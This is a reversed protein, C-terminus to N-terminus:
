KRIELVEVRRDAPFPIELGNRLSEGTVAGAERGTMASRLHFAGDPFVPLKVTVRDMHSENRFLGIMGEGSRSLRAYGDWSAGGPQRWNGLPFFGESLPVQRRLAKFGRIMEGYWSQQQPTLKRLDGLFLPGSAMATVLREEISPMEAQLNGILMTESPIALSRLYLLTRAQRPGAAGQERDDVNSLWDLDGATLLGYDIIHKQGWLEFTLDLLVGPHAQYIRDTVYRIGEYIRELSEAWTLHYHGGAYCGPSEGYANFVTTLDMKVYGLRYRGVLDILRKAAADRYGSDLCMVAAAGAATRTIKPNGDRDKCVWEPHQKYIETDTSIAALPSWLGLRMGQKEVAAQIEELGNPFSRLNIANDGYEAQWGDDITFVDIGMRGAITILDLTVQRSIGRQFPEWTNYIWPPQYGAGKKMLTRSTYSPMVWRPDASGKGEAFFAISGAASTFTEQPKLRREFPFLDTDYMLQVGDGWGSLETRKTYGPAGNMAIFGEGTLSNRVLVAADDVRGTLFIERPESAYFAAAQLVHPSGPRIPVSEFSLHSLKLVESGRNTITLWKQVVPHADYVAYCATVDLPKNLGRLHIELLEGSPSLKQTKAGVFEWSRGQSGALFDGDIRFSFEGGGNRRRQAAPIFETGTIKHQWSRTYLGQGSDFRLERQVFANGITWSRGESNSRVYAASPEDTAPSTAPSAPLNASGLLLSTASAQMFQRRNLKGM